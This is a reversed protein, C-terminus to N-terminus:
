PRDGGTPHCHDAQDAMMRRPSRGAPRQPSPRLSRSPRRIWGAAYKRRLRRWRARRQAEVRSLIGDREQQADELVLQRFRNLKHNIDPM